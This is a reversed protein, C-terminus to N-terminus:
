SISNTLVLKRFILVLLECTEGQFFPSSLQNAAEANGSGLSFKSDSESYVVQAMKALM